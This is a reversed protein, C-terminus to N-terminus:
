LNIVGAFTDKYSLRIGVNSWAFIDPFLRLIEERSRGVQVSSILGPDFRWVKVASSVSKVKHQVAVKMLQSGSAM